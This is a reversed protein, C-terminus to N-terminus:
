AIDQDLYFRMLGKYVCATADYVENRDHAAWMRAFKEESEKLKEDDLGFYGRAAKLKYQSRSRVHYHNIRLVEHSPQMEEFFGFPANSHLMRRREDVFPGALEFVHSGRPAFVKRPDVISKVHKNLGFNTEARRLFNEIVLGQPRDEHGSSGFLHWYVGVGATDEYKELASRIDGGNAPYLFEDADIFAMWRFDSGFCKIAITAFDEPGGNPQFLYTVSKDDKFRKVIEPTADSSGNDIIILHEFGAARHFAMWEAIIDQENKIHVCAALYKM